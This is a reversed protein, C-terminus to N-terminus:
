SSRQKEDGNGFVREMDEDLMTWLTLETRLSEEESLKKVRLEQDPASPPSSPKIKYLDFALLNQIFLDNEERISSQLAELRSVLGNKRTKVDLRLKEYHAMQKEFRSRAITQRRGLFRVIVHMPNSASEDDETLDVTRSAKHEEDFSLYSTRRKKHSSAHKRKMSDTGVANSCAENNNKAEDRVFLAAARDYVGCAIMSEKRGHLLSVREAVFCDILHWLAQMENVEDDTTSQTKDSNITAAGAPQSLSILMRLMERHFPLFRPFDEPCARIAKVDQTCALQQRMPGVGTTPEVMTRNESEIGSELTVDRVSNLRAKCSRYPLM